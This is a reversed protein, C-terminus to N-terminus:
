TNKTIYDASVNKSQSLIFLIFSIFVIFQNIEGKENGTQFCFTFKLKM